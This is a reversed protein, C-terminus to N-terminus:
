RHQKDHTRILGYEETPVELEIGYMENYGAEEIVGGLETGFKYLIHEKSLNDWDRRKREMKAQIEANDSQQVSSLVAAM